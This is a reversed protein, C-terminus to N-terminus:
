SAKSITEDHNQAGEYSYIQKIKNRFSRWNVTTEKDQAVKEQIRFQTREDLLGMAEEHSADHAKFCTIEAGSLNIIFSKLKNADSLDIWSMCPIEARLEENNKMADVRGLEEESLGYIMHVVKSNVSKKEEGASEFSEANLFSVFNKYQEDTADDTLPDFMLLDNIKDLVNADTSESVFGMFQDKFLKYLVIYHSDLGNKFVADLNDAKAPYMASFSEEILTNPQTYRLRALEVSITSLTNKDFGKARRSARANSARKEFDYVKDIVEYTENLISESIQNQIRIIEYFQIQTQLDSMHAWLINATSGPAKKYADNINQCLSGFNFTEFESSNLSISSGSGSDGDEKQAQVAEAAGGGGGSMSIEGGGESKAKWVKALVWLAIIFGISFILIWLFQGNKILTNYAGFVFDSKMNSVADDLKPTDDLVTFVTDEPLFLREKLSSKVLAMEEESVERKQIFVVKREYLNLVNEIKSDHADGTKQYLGPLSVVSEADLKADQRKLEVRITISDELTYDKLLQEIEVKHYKSITEYDAKIAYANSVTFFLLASVIGIKKILNM